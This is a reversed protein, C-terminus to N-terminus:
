GVETAGFGLANQGGFGALIGLEILEKPAFIEFDFLYGIVKTEAPTHAKVLIGRKKPHSSLLNFGVSPTRDLSEILNHKCITDYKQLLNQQFYYSFDGNQPHLYEHSLKGGKTRSPKGVMMPSTTRLRLRDTSIVLPLMDIQRVRMRVQSIQDGIVVEQNAFLGKILPEGIDKLYMSITLEVERSLIKMRDGVIEYRPVRLNSFTFLKFKRKGLDYGNYHIFRAFDKDGKEILGYIWSSIEYQYSFPLLSAYETVELIIKIRM